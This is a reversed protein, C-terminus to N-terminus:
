SQSTDRPQPDLELEAAAGAANAAAAAAAAVSRPPPLLASDSPVLVRLPRERMRCNLPPHMAWVDGDISVEVSRRSSEIRVEPLAMTQFHPPAGNWMRAGLRSLVRAVSGHPRSPRAVYVNLLGGEPAPSAPLDFLKLAHPNNSVIVSLADAAFTHGRSRVRLQRDNMGVVRKLMAPWTEHRTASSEGPLGVAAFNLFIRGNIEPVAVDAVRGQALAVVACDLEAPVNLERAFHNNHGLPLVGVAKYSSAVMNIVEAVLGDGGGIIIADVDSLMAEKAQRLVAPTDICHVFAEAGADAFGRLLRVSTEKRDAGALGRAGENLLVLLKM